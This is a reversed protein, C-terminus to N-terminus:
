WNAFFIGMTRRPQLLYTRLTSVPRQFHEQTFSIAAPGIANSHFNPCCSAQHTIAYITQRMGCDHQSRAPGVPQHAHAQRQSLQTPRSDSPRHLAIKGTLQLLLAITDANTKFPLLKLALEVQAQIRFGM